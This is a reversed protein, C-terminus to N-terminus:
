ESVSLGNLLELFDKEYEKILNKGTYTIVQVTGGPGGYYYGLYVFPTHDIEAETKLFWVDNGHVQRKEQYVIKANPDKAKANNLAIEPLADLPLSIREAIVLAYGDGSSHVLTYRGNTSSPKEKWKQPDYKLSM